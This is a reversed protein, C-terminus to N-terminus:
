TEEEEDTDGSRWSRSFRYVALMILVFGLSLAYEKLMYDEGFAVFLVGAVLLILNITDNTKM